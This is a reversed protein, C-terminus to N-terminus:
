LDASKTGTPTTLLVEIARTTLCSSARKLVVSSNMAYALRLGPLSLTPWAPGPEGM